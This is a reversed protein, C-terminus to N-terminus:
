KLVNGLQKSLSGTRRATSPVPLVRFQPRRSVSLLVQQPLFRWSQLPSKPVRGPLQYISRLVVRRSFASDIVDEGQQLLFALVVSSATVFIALTAVVALFLLDVFEM